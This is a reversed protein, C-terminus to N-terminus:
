GQSRSIQCIVKFIYLAGRKFLMLSQADNWWWIHFRVPTITRFYSLQTKVETVKVKQGRVEVMQKSIVETMPLWEQFNCLSFPTVPPSLCVSPRVSQVSPCISLCVPPSFWEYLQKTAALFRNHFKLRFIKKFPFDMQFHQRCFTARKKLGLYLSIKEDLHM